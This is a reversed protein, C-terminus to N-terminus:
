GLIAEIKDVTKDLDGSLLDYSQAGNALAAAADGRTFSRAEQPTFVMLDWSNELRRAAESAPVRELTPTAGPRNTLFFLFAARASQRSPVIGVGELAPIKDLRPLLLEEQQLVPRLDPFLDTAGPKFYIPRPFPLVELTAPDFPAYEDGLFRFGRRALAYSLTSKGSGSGGSLLLARGDKAVVAAHLVFLRSLTNMVFCIVLLELGEYWDRGWIEVRGLRCLGYGPELPVLEQINERVRNRIPVPADTYFFYLLSGEWLDFGAPVRAYIQRKRLDALDGDKALFTIELHGSPVEGCRFCSYFREFRSVVEEANSRIKVVVGYFDFSAEIPCLHADPYPPNAM